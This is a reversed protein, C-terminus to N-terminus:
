FCPAGRQVFTNQIVWLCGSSVNSGCLSFIAILTIAIIVIEIVIIIIMIRWVGEIGGLLNVQGLALRSRRRRRGGQRRRRWVHWGWGGEGAGGDGGFEVVGDVVHIVALPLVHKRPKPPTYRQLLTGTLLSYGKDRYSHTIEIKMNKWPLKLKHIWVYHCFMCNCPMESHQISIVWRRKNEWKTKNNNSSVIVINAKYNGCIYVLPGSLSSAIKSELAMTM